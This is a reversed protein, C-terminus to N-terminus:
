QRRAARRIRRLRQPMQGFIEDLVRERHESALLEELSATRRRRVVSM